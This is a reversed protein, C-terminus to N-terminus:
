QRLTLYLILDKAGATYTGATSSVAACVGKGFGMGSSPVIISFNDAAGIAMSHTPVRVLFGANSVGNTLDQCVGAQANALSTALRFVGVINTTVAFYIGAPAAFDNTLQVREGLKVEGGPSLAGSLSNTFWEQGTTASFGSVQITPGNSSATDFFQLFQQAGNNYGFCNVLTCPKTYVTWWDVLDTTTSTRPAQQISSFTLTNGAPQAYSGLAVLVAALVALTTKM